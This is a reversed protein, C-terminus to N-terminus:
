TALVEEWISQQRACHAGRLPTPLSGSAPFFYVHQPTSPIQREGIIRPGRLPTQVFRFSLPRLLFSTNVLDDFGGM